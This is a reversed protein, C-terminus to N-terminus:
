GRMSWASVGLIALIAVWRLVDEVRRRPSAAEAAHAAARAAGVADRDARLRELAGAAAGEGRLFAAVELAEQAGALPPCPTAAVAAALHHAARFAGVAAAEPTIGYEAALGPLAAGELTLRVLLRAERPDLGALAQALDPM